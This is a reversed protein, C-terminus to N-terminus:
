RSRAATDRDRTRTASRLARDLRGDHGYIDESFHITGDPWVASTVYFLIVPIPRALDVRRTRDEMAEVIRERTWGPQDRLVWEAVSVPDELRVCGHSFDRRSRGFLARAPTGHMYVDQENPFVFKILGLSNSPGPRQRLRLAGARLRQLNNADAEVPTADDTAGEVIEMNERRLYAPDRALKPLIENRLISRPVNWYPRFIVQRLEQVLVPTPTLVARGVIANTTLAPAGDGRVADWAGLRFMPINVALVREGTLHPLWRLRELSLEIQRVRSAIPVALAAGTRAGLVGDTDLGHRAQFRIVGAALEGDYTTPDARRQADQALDGLAVLYASLAPAGACRDGPHLSKAAPPIDPPAVAALQRYSRLAARLARYQAFAPTLGDVAAAIDNRAIASRLVGEYDHTHRPVNLRYGMARPDVRGSHLHQLYRVVSATLDADFAALDQRSPSSARSLASARQQLSAADYDEAVLGDQAASALIALAQHAAPVLRGSADVWAPSPQGGAGHSTVAFVLVAVIALLRRM